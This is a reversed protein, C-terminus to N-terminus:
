VTDPGLQETTTFEIDMTAATGNWDIIRADSNTTVEVAVGDKTIDAFKGKLTIVPTGSVVDARWVTGPTLRDYRIATTTGNPSGDLAIGANAINTAGNILEGASEDTSVLQGITVTSGTAVILNRVDQKGTLRTFAM